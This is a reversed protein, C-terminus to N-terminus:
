LRVGMLVAGEGDAYYGPRLGRREFGAGAYLHLAARNSARVELLVDCVGAARQAELLAALLRRGLGSRRHAPAVALSRIEAEHEVRAALAYGVVEGADSVAVFGLGGRAELEQRFADPVWREPLSARAVRAIAPGDDPVAARLEVRM